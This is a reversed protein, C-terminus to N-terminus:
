WCLFWCIFGTRAAHMLAQKVSISEKDISCNQMKENGSRLIWQKLSM